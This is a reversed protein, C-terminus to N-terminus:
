FILFIMKNKKKNKFYILHVTKKNVKLQNFPIVIKMLFTM